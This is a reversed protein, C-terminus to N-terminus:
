LRSKRGILSGNWLDPQKGERSVFPAAQDPGLTRTAEAFTLAQCLTGSGGSFIKKFRTYLSTRTPAHLWISLPLRLTPDSFHRRESQSREVVM